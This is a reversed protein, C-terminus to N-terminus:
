PGPTGRCRRGRPRTWGLSRGQRGRRNCRRRTGTRSPCTTPRKMLDALQQADITTTSTYQFVSGAKIAVTQPLPLRWKRNFGGVLTAQKFIQGAVLTDTPLSLAQAVMSAPLVDVYEGWEDRIILDSLLTLILHNQAEIDEPDSDTEVWTPETEVTVTVQGYGAQKSRGLWLEGALLDQLLEADKDRDCLVVGQFTQRPALAEYRFVAGSGLMARGAQRDRQTHVHILWEPAYLAVASGDRHCFAAKVPRPQNIAEKFEDETFGPHISDYIPDATQAQKDRQWSLPVPLTRENDATVPYANLYRTTGDFFLGSTEDNITLGGAISQGNSNRVIYQEIVAGRIVSGPIFPYSRGSNPDGDLATALLPEQLTITAILAKM